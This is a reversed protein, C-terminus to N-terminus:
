INELKSWIGTWEPVRIWENAQVMQGYEEGFFFSILNIAIQLNPFYYDTRIENRCFGWRNELVRYYGALENNPPAPYLSVSGLTEIIIMMGGPKLVRKMENITRDLVSEWNESFWSRFHGIVWGAIVLHFRESPFPLELLDGRVLSWAGAVQKMKQTQEELMGQNLDLGIVSKAKQHLLSPFRGTGTGLDLVKKGSLSVLSEIATLLNGDVDEYEILQHYKDAKNAYIYQFHDM